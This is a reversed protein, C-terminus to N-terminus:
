KAKSSNQSRTCARVNVKIKVKGRQGETEKEILSLYHINGLDDRAECALSGLGEQVRFEEERIATWHVARSDWRMSCAKCDALPAQISLSLLLTIGSKKNFTMSNYVLWFM